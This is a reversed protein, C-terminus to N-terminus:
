VYLVDITAHTCMGTKSSSCYQPYQVCLMAALDALKQAPISSLAGIGVWETEGNLEDEDVTQFLWDVVGFRFARATPRHVANSLSRWAVKEDFDVLGVVATLSEVAHASPSDMSYV